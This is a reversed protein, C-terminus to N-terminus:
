GDFMLRLIGGVAFLGYLLFVTSILIKVRLSEFRQWLLYICGFAIICEVPRFYLAHYRSDWYSVPSEFKWMTFPWFHSHGDDAHLPLDGFLHLLASGAFAAILVGPVTRGARFLLLGAAGILCYLPISNFIASLLQPIETFYTENFLTSLPIGAALAWLVLGYIFADPILSGILAIWNRRPSDPRAFVAAAMLTHTPTMM